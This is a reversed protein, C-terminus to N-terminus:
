AARVENLFSDVADRLSASQGGLRQAADSLQGAVGLTESVGDKIGVMASSVQENGAAAQQVNRAIEKTTADQEEVASAIAGAIGNLEAITAAISRIAEVAGATAKQIGGIQHSIDDTAKATQNALNKVESAVVAFGRGADGARAAEITANLALLNTQGAIQNILSVVDGIKQADQALAQVVNNTKDADTAARNAIEASKGVQRSIEGIFASLEETASAVTQVNSSAQVAAAAVSSSTEGARSATDSMTRVAGELQQTSHGVGDVVGRVKAELAAALDNMAKRKTEREAAAYTELLVELDLWAAKTLANKLALRRAADGRGFVGGSGGNELGLMDVIGATVTAHCIAVAYSPIGNDYFAQALQQASEMFGSDFEGSAVRVWHGVRVRHVAPLRLAAQVDPWAAFKAHLTELLAPLKQRFGAAQSQLLAIEEGGIGFAAFRNKQATDYSPSM